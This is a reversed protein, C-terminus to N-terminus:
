RPNVSMRGRGASEEQEIWAPQQWHVCCLGQM